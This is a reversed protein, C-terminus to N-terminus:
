EVPPPTFTRFMDPHDAVVTDDTRFRQGRTIAVRRGHHILVADAVAFVFRTEPDNRRNM